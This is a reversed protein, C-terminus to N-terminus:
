GKNKKLSEILQKYLEEREKELEEKSPQGNEENDKEVDERIKKFAEEAAEKAAEEDYDDYGLEKSIELDINGEKINGQRLKSMGRYYYAVADTSDNEIMKTFDDIAGDYDQLIDKLVGREFFSKTFTPDIEIAKNHDKLANEFEYLFTKVTARLSYADSLTFESNTPNIEIFKTLDQIAMQYDDLKYASFARAFYARAASPDLEITKSFYKIAEYDESLIGKSYYFDPETPKLEIAKNYDELAGKIDKLKYYKILGSEYYAFAKNSYDSNIAYNFDEMAGLFDDIMKKSLGRSYYADILSPILSIAKNYNKIAEKYNGSDYQACGEDYAKLGNDLKDLMNKSYNLDQNAGKEDKLERKIKSRELFAEYSTPNIEICKNLYLLAESYKRKKAKEIGIKLYEESDYGKFEITNDVDKPNPEDIGKNEKEFINFLRNWNMFLEM